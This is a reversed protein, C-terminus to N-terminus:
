INNKLGTCCLNSHYALPKWDQLDTGLDHRIYPGYEHCISNDM